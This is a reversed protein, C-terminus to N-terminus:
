KSAAAAVVITGSMTKGHTTCHYKYEGAKDFKVEKSSKGADIEGTDFTKGDDDSTATHATRADNKWIVSDGVRIELKKPDFSLSKMSVTVPKAESQKEIKEAALCILASTLSLTCILLLVIKM